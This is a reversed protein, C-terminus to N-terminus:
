RELYNKIKEIIEQNKGSFKRAFMMKSNKILEYDLSTFTYPEGRKWDILRMAAECDNGGKQYINDKFKSNYVLTQLFLEDACHSYNFVKKILKEKKIVYKVLDDTISFWNCGKRIVLTENKLRNTKLIKQVKLLNQYLLSSIKRILRNKNRYNNNFLHYYKIRAIDMESIDELSSFGVFEKTQKKFFNYIEEAKKIPLDVGSILHYYQYNNNSALKMLELECEIQKYTGWRVDLRKTFFIKSKKLLKEVEQFNFNKVKKDVHIYIDILEHDLLKLITKLLNYDDHYMILIAQKQM